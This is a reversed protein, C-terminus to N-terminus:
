DPSPRAFQLILYQTLIGLITLILFMGGQNLSGVHMTKLILTVATLVSVILLTFDFSIIMLGFVALGAIVFLLPTAWDNQGGLSVPLNYVLFGGAVFGAARAIWRTFLFTLLAGAAAFLLSLIMGNWFSSFLAFQHSIFEGVLFGIGGVFFWYAPRGAVLILFGLGVEIFSMM